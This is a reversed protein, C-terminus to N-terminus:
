SSNKDNAITVCTAGGTRDFPDAIASSMRGKERLPTEGLAPGERHRCQDFRAPRWRGTHALQPLQSLELFAVNRWRADIARVRKIRITGEKWCETM